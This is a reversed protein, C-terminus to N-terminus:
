RGLHTQFDSTLLMLLYIFTFLALFLYLFSHISRGISTIYLALRAIGERTKLLGGCAEVNDQDYDVMAIGYLIIRCLLFFLLRIMEFSLNKSFCFSWTFCQNKSVNVLDDVARM